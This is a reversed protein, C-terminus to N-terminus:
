DCFFGPRTSCKGKPCVHGKGPGTTCCDQTASAYCSQGVGPVGDCCSDFEATCPVQPAGGATKCTIAPATATANLGLAQNNSAYWIEMRNGGGCMQSGDGNCATNCDDDSVKHWSSRDVTSPRHNRIRM